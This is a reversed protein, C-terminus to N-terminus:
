VKVRQWSKPKVSKRPTGSDRLNQILMYKLTYLDCVHRRPPWCHIKQSMAVIPGMQQAQLSTVSSINYGNGCHKATAINSRPSVTRTKCVSVGRARNKLDGFEAIFKQRASTANQAAVIVIWIGGQLKKRVCFIKM